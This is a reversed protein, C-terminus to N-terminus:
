RLSELNILNFYKNINIICVFLGVWGMCVTDVAWAEKKSDQFFGLIIFAVIICLTISNWTSLKLFLSVGGLSFGFVLFYSRILFSELEKGDYKAYKPTIVM